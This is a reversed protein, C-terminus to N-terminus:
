DLIEGGSRDAEHECGLDVLLGVVEPIVVLEEGLRARAHSALAPRGARRSGGAARGDVGALALRRWGPARLGADGGDIRQLTPRAERCTTACVAVTGFRRRSRRQRTPGRLR